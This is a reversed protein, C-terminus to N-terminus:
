PLDVTRLHQEKSQKNQVLVLAQTDSFRDLQVVDKLDEITEYKLGAKDAVRATIPDTTDIGETSLKMVGRRSNAMLIYNKGGKSYVIMDLPKNGAGLEAITTGKVKNGAKLESVPIRVLPTHPVMRKTKFNPWRNRLRSSLM